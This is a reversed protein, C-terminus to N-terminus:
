DAAERAFYPNSLIELRDYQRGLREYDDPRIWEFAESLSADEGRDHTFALRQNQLLVISPRLTETTLRPDSEYVLSIRQAFRQFRALYSRVPETPSRRLLFVYELTLRGAAVAEEFKMYVNEFWSSRPLKDPDFATLRIYAKVAGGERELRGM